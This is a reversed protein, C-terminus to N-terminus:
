TTMKKLFIFEKTALTFEIRFTLGISHELDNNTMHASKLQWVLSRGNSHAAETRITEMLGCQPVRPAVKELM